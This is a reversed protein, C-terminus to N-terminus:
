SRIEPHLDHEKFFNTVDRIFKNQKSLNAVEEEIKTARDELKVLPTNEIFKTTEEGTTLKNDLDPFNSYEFTSMLNASKIENNDIEAIKNTYMDIFGHRIDTMMSASDANRKELLTTREDLVPYKEQLSKLLKDSEISLSDSNSTITNINKIQDKLGVIKENELEYLGKQIPQLKDEYAEYIPLLLLVLLLIALYFQWHKM